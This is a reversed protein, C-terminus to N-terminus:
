SLVVTPLRGKVQVRATTATVDIVIAVPRVASGSASASPPTTTAAGAGVYLTDGKAPSGTIQDLDVDLIGGVQVGGEVGFGVARSQWPAPTDASPSAAAGSAVYYLAGPTISGTALIVARIM